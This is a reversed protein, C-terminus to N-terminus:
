ARDSDTGRVRIAGRRVRRALRAERSTFLSAHHSQQAHRNERVLGCLSDVGGRVRRRLPSRTTHGWHTGWECPRSTCAADSHLRACHLGMPLRPCVVMQAGLRFVQRNGHAWLAISEPGDSALGRPRQAHLPACEACPTEPLPMHGGRANDEGGRVNAHGQEACSSEFAVPTDHHASHGASRNDSCPAVSGTVNNGRAEMAGPIHANSFCAVRVRRTSTSLSLKYPRQNKTPENENRQSPKM